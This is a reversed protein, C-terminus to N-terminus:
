QKAYLFYEQIVPALIEDIKDFDYYPIRILKINNSKCYDTKIADKIKNKEFQQEAWEKGKGAFDVPFFHQQGDFEIITNSLPIFFDFKLPQQYVCGDFTKQPKYQIKNKKLVVAIRDEGKSFVCSPCGSGQYLSAPTTFWTDGCKACRCEIKSEWGSYEGIIQTFPSRDKIQLAFDETTKNKGACYSCGYACNKFHDWAMSQEGKGRHEPCIFKVISGTRDHRLYRGVYELGLSNCRDIVTDEDVMKVSKEMTCYHCHRGANVVNNLTRQQVGYEAHLDCIFDLKDHMGSYTESVLHFHPFNINLYTKINEVAYPNREIWSPKRGSLYRSKCINYRYGDADHAPIKTSSIYQEITYGDKELLALFEDKTM